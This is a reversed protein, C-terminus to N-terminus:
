CSYESLLSRRWAMYYYTYIPFDPNKINKAHLDSLSQHSRFQALVWIRVYKGALLNVLLCFSLQEQFYYTRLPPLLIHTLTSFNTLKVSFIQFLTSIKVIQLNNFYVRTYLM